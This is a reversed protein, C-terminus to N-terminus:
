KTVEILLIKGDVMLAAQGVDIEFELADLIEFTTEDLIQIKMKNAMKTNGGRRNITRVLKSFFYEM